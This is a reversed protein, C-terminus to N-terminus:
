AAPASSAYPLKDGTVKTLVPGLEHHHVIQYRTKKLAKVRRRFRGPRRRKPMPYLRDLDDQNLTFGPDHARDYRSVTCECRDHIPMLEDVKYVRDAAAVCM